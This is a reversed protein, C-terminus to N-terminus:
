AARALPTTSGQVRPLDPLRQARATLELERLVRLLLAREQDRGVLWQCYRADDALDARLFAIRDPPMEAALLCLGAAVRGTTLAGAPALDLEAHLLSPLDDLRMQPADTLAALAGRAADLAGEDDGANARAALLRLAAEPEDALVRACLETSELRERDDADACSALYASVVRAAAREVGTARPSPAHERLTDALARVAALVPDATVRLPALGRGTHTAGAGVGPAIPARGRLRDDAGLRAPSRSLAAALEILGAIARISAPETFDVGELTARACDIRVPFLSLYSLPPRASWDHWGADRGPHELTRVTLVRGRRDIADLTVVADLADAYLARAAREPSVLFWSVDFAHGRRADAHAAAIAGAEREGLALAV